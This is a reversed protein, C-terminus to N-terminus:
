EVERRAADYRSHQNGVHNALTVTLTASRQAGSSRHAATAGALWGRGDLTDELDQKTLGGDCIYESFQTDIVRLGFGYEVDHRRNAAGEREGAIRRAQWAIGRSTSGDGFPDVIAAARRCLPEVTATPQWRFARSTALHITVANSPPRDIATM